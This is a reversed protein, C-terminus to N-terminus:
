AAIGTPLTDNLVIDAEILARGPTQCDWASSLMDDHAAQWDGDKLAAIAHAFGLLGAFGLQYAMDVLVAQRPISLSRWWPIGRDLQALIGAVKIEFWADADAQTCTLGQHVGADARGWGITWIGRTDQYALLRCSEEGKILPEAVALLVADQPSQPM